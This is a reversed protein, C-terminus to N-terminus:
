KKIIKQVAFRNDEFTTQVFYIGNPLHSVEVIHSNGLLNAVELFTTGQINIIKLSNITNPSSILLNNTVPNPYCTFNLIDNNNNSLGDIIIQQSYTYTKNCINLILSITYNGNQSFTYIPNQEASTDGNGFDWTLGSASPTNNQFHIQNPSLYDLTFYAFNDHVGSYWAELQDFVVTKVTNKLIDAVATTLNANYSVATPNKQYLITYFTYAAAMSGILSPHSEDSTYLEIEPNNERIHRWVAAVPAIVGNNQEAMTRYREQLLNDMGEYTCVPPHIPCNSADGNKRGWTNYFLPVSCSYNERIMNCLTNAYPFMIQEIQSAPFSPIQSQEQLVVYDWQNSNIKDLVAPNNAHNMLTAGGPIHNQYVLTDQTSIAMQHILGPLNNSATYSNGIFLVKKSTQGNLSYGLIFLLLLYHLKM